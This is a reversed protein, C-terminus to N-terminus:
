EYDGWVSINMNTITTSMETAKGSMTCLYGTTVAGEAEAAPLLRQPSCTRGLAAWEQQGLLIPSHVLPCKQRQTPCKENKFNLIISM